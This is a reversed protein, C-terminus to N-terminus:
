RTIITTLSLRKPPTVTPLTVPSPMASRRPPPSRRSNVDVHISHLNTSSSLLSSPSLTSTGSASRRFRCLRPNGQRLRHGARRLSSIVFLVPYATREHLCVTLTPSSCKESDPKLASSAKDGLSQRGMDSMTSFTQKTPQNPNPSTYHTSTRKTSLLFLYFHISSLSSSLIILSYLGGALLHQHTRTPATVPISTM